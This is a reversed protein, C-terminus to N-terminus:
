TKKEDPLDPKDPKKKLFLWTLGAQSQLGLKSHYNFGIDIHFTRSHIGLGLSSAGPVSGTGLRVALVPVPKYEMGINISPRKGAELGGEAALSLKDSLDYSLGTKWNMPEYEAPLLIILPHHPNSVFFGVQLHRYPRLLMGLRLTLIDKSGYDRIALRKIGASFGASLDKALLMGAALGATYTSFASYGFSSGTLGVSIRRLPFAVAISRTTLEKLLFNNQASVGATSWQLGALGAPNNKVSWLDSHIVSVGGMGTSRAGAPENASTQSFTTYLLLSLLLQKQRKQKM